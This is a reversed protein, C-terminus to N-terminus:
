GFQSEIEANVTICVLDQRLRKRRLVEKWTKPNNAKKAAEVAASYEGLHVHCSSLKSHNPISSYLVKLSPRLRQWARLSSPLMQMSHVRHGIGRNSVIDLMNM